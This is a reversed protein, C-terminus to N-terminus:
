VVRVVFLVILLPFVLLTFVVLATLLAEHATSEAIPPYISTRYLPATHIKRSQVKDQKVV